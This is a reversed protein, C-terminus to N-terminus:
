MGRNVLETANTAYADWTGYDVMPYLVGVDRVNSVFSSLCALDPEPDTTPSSLRDGIWCFLMFGENGEIDRPFGEVVDLGPTHPHNAFDRILGSVYLIEELVTRIEDRPNAIYETGDLVWGDRKTFAKELDERRELSIRGQPDVQDVEYFVKGDVVKLLPYYPRIDVGYRRSQVNGIHNLVAFIVAPMAISSARGVPILTRDGRVQAIRMLILNNFVRRLQDASTSNHGDHVPYLNNIKAALRICYNTMVDSSQVSIDM